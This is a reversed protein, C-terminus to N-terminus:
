SITINIVPRVGIYLNYLDNYVEGSALVLWVRKKSNLSSTWYSTEFLYNPCGSIDDNSVTFDTNCMTGLEQITLVTGNIANLGQTNLTSVYENVYEEVISGTYASSQSGYGTAFSGNGNNASSDWWYNTSSFPVIGYIMEGEGNASEWFAETEEDPPVTCARKLSFM